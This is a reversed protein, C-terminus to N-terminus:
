KAKKAYVRSYYLKRRGRMQHISVLNANSHQAEPNHIPAATSTVTSIVLSPIQGLFVHKTKMVKVVSGCREM